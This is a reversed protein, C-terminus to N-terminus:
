KSFLQLDKCGLKGLQAITKKFVSGDYQIPIEIIANSILGPYDWDKSLKPYLNADKESCWFILEKAELFEFYEKLILQENEDFKSFITKKNFGEFNNIVYFLGNPIFYYNYRNLDFLISRQVGKVLIVNAFLKFIKENNYM